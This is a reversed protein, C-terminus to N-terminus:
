PSPKPDGKPPTMPAPPAAISLTQRSVRPASEMISQLNFWTSLQQYPSTTSSHSFSANGLTVWVHDYPNDSIHMWWKPHEVVRAVERWHLILSFLCSTVCIWRQINRQHSGQFMLDRYKSINVTYIILWGPTALVHFHWFCRVRM